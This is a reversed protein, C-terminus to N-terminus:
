ADSTLIDLIAKESPDHLTKIFAAQDEANLYNEFLPIYGELSKLM